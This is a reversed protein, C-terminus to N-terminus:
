RNLVEGAGDSAWNNRFACNIIETDGFTYLGGGRGTYTYPWPGGYAKNGDVVCDILMLKNHNSGLGGGGRDVSNSSFICNTLFVDNADSNCMGGWVM